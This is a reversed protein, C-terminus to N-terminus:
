IDFDDDDSVEVDYDDNEDVEIDYEYFEKIKSKIKIPEIGRSRKRYESSIATLGSQTNNKKGIQM